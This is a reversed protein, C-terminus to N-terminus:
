ATSTGEHDGSVITQQRVMKRPYQTCGIRSIGNPLGLAFVSSDQSRTEMRRSGTPAHDGHKKQPTHSKERFVADTKSRKEAQPYGKGKGPEVFHISFFFWWFFCGVFFILELAWLLKSARNFSFTLLVAKNASAMTDYTKNIMVALIPIQNALEQLSQDLAPDSFATLAM